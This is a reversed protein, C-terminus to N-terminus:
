GGQPPMAPLRALAYLTGTFSIMDALYCLRLGGAATVVGALAPGAMLGVQFSMQNLAIGAAVQGAPLLRPVFTRRAPAGVAGLLSQVAVLTYLPWLARLGAFAQAALLASVVVSGINTALVLRRRDVADAFSGGFLGLLILPLGSALGVAGVAASSHTTRYVQLTVAFTTMQGGVVSLSSGVWLRRFDASGRLPGIDLVFRRRRPM